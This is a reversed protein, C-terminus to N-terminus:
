ASAVIGVPNGTAYNLQGPNARAYALLEPFTKIPLESNVYLFLVFRSVSSIPTFDSQTDYPLSRVMAPLAVTGATALLLTYGDPPAAAVAAAGIASNAGPRNQVVVPQGMSASMDAALIRGVLDNATGAPFPVIISIPKTPYQALAM